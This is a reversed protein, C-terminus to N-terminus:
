GSPVAEDMNLLLSLCYYRTPGKAFNSAVGTHGLGCGGGIGHSHDIQRPSLINYSSLYVSSTSLDFQAPITRMSNLGNVNTEHRLRRLAFSRNSEVLFCVSPRKLIMFQQSRTRTRVICTAFNGCTAVPRLAFSFSVFGLFNSFRGWTSVVAGVFESTRHCLPLPVNPTTRRLLPCRCYNAYALPLRM